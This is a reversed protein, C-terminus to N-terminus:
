NFIDIRRDDGLRRLHARVDILHALVHRIGEFDVYRLDIYLRRRLFSKAKGSGSLANGRLRDTQQVTRHSEVVLVHGAAAATAATTTYLLDTQRMACDKYLPLFTPVATLVPM